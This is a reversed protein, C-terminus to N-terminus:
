KSKDQKLFKDIKEEIAKRDADKPENFDMTAMIENDKLPEKFNAFCKKSSGGKNCAFLFIKKDRIINESLFTLIPPALGGAWTPTGFFLTDYDDLKIDGNILQPKEKFIVSKGGLFYKMFGQKPIEKKPILKILDAGIKDGIVSAILETNGELSYYIIGTKMRAGEKIIIDFFFASEFNNQFSMM